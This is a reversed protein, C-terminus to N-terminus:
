REVWAIGVAGPGVHAGIAPCAQLIPIEMTWRKQLHRALDQAADRADAHLIALAELDTRQAAIEGIREVARHWTRVRELLVARGEHVEILPKLHLLAAAFARIWGIRGSRHLYNVDEVTALLRVRPRLTQLHRLIEELSLGERAWRAAYRVQWGLGMSVQGSDFVYVRPRMVTQAALHAANCVASFASAVHISLIVDAEEGLQRYIVEFDGASPAATQPLVEGARLRKYFAERSIEVNDRYVEEGFRVYVPVVTIEEETIWGPPLDATSDTVIRIRM